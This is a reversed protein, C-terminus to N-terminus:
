LPCFACPYLVWLKGRILDGPSPALQLKTEHCDGSFAFESSNFPCSRLLVRTIVADGVLRWLLECDVRGPGIVTGTDHPSKYPEKAGEGVNSVVLSESLDLNV